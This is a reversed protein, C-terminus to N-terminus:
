SLGSRGLGSRGLGSGLREDAFGDRSEVGFAAGLAALVMFAIVFSTFLLIADM